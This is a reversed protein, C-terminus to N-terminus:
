LHQKSTCKKRRLEQKKKIKKTKSNTEINWIDTPEQSQLGSGFFLFLLFILLTKKNLLKLTKM